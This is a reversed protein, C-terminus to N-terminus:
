LPIAPKPTAKNLQYLQPDITREFCSHGQGHDWTQNQGGPYPYYMSQPAINKEQDSPYNFSACLEFSLAGTARYEYDTDTQPDKPPVYGSISDRLDTLSAPLKDKNQWYSVVQAQIGQLDNLKQADFKIERQRFPSGVLSIGIVVIVLAAVAAGWRWYRLRGTEEPRRRIDFYYYAFVAAGIVFVAFVKWIFRMTLDGNLFGYILAVLDGIILAASLFLTLYSLWRRVRFENKEPNRALDRNIFWVTWLYVPFLIILTALPWNVAAATQPFRELPDKVWIDVYTFLLNLASVVSWYLTITSLLHLFVDRPYTRKIDQETM